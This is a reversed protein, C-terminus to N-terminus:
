RRRLASVLQAKSMKWRGVIDRRGALQRLTCLTDNVYLAARPSRRVAPCPSRRRPAGGSPGQRSIAYILPAVDGGSSTVAHRYADVPVRDKDQEFRPLGEFSVFQMMRRAQILTSRTGRAFPIRVLLRGADVYMDFAEQSDIVPPSGDGTGSEVYDVLGGSDDYQVMRSLAWADHMVTSPTRAGRDRAQLFRHLFYIEFLDDTHGPARWATPPESTDGYDRDQKTAFTVLIHEVAKNDPHDFFAGPNFASLGKDKVLYNLYVSEMYAAMRLFPSHAESNLKFYRDGVDTGYSLRYADLSQKNKTWRTPPPSYSM